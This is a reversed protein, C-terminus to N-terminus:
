LRIGKALLLPLPWETFTNLWTWSSPLPRERSRFIVELDPAVSLVTRPYAPRSWAPCVAWASPDCADVVGSTGHPRLGGFASRDTHRPRSGPRLGRRCSDPGSPEPRVVGRRGAAPRRPGDPRRRAAKGPRSAPPDCSLALNSIIESLFLWSGHDPNILCTNKGIWGLGAYQAYVREQIPGTDVYARAEFGPGAADRLWQLLAEMRRGLVEHYDDGWAYRAVAAQRPDAHETSFPRDVTYITGLVIVSRASPLVRRVDTRREASRHLYQMEGAYGHDLWTQLFRLEPFDAAPAIGCLDFGTDRARAKIEDAAVAQLEDTKEM